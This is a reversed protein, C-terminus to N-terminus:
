DGVDFVDFVIALQKVKRRHEEFNEGAKAKVLKAVVSALLGSKEATSKIADNLKAGAEQHQEYLAVLDDVRDSLETVSIVAEQGNGDVRGTPKERKKRAPKANSDYITSVLTM